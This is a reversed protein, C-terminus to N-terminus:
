EEEGLSEELHEKELEAWATGMGDVSAEDQEIRLRATMEAENERSIWRDMFHSGYENGGARSISIYLLGFIIALIPFAIAVDDSNSSDDDMVVLDGDEIGLATLFLLAICLGGLVRRLRRSPSEM